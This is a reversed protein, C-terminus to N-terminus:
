FGDWQLKQGFTLLTHQFGIYTSMIKDGRATINSTDAPLPTTNKKREKKKETKKIDRKGTTAHAPHRLM